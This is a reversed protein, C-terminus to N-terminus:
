RDKIQSHPEWRHSNRRVICARAFKPVTAAIHGSSTRCCGVQGRLPRYGDKLSGDNIWGLQQLYSKSEKKKKKKCERCFPYQTAGALVNPAVIIMTNTLDCSPSFCYFHCTTGGIGGIYLLCLLFISVGKIRKRGCSIFASPHELPLTSRHM